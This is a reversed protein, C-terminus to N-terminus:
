ERVNPGGVGEAGREQKDARRWLHMGALHDSDHGEPLECQGCMGNPDRALCRPRKIFESRKKKEMYKNTWRDHDGRSM